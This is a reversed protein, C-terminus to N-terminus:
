GGAGDIMVELAAASITRGAAEIPERFAREVDSRGVSGLAHRDARRQFTLVEDNVVDSISAALGAGAFALERGERFAHQM